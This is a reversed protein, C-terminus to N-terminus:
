AIRERIVDLAADFRRFSPCLNKISDLESQSEVALDFATKEDLWRRTTHELLYPLVVENKPHVYDEPAKKLPPLPHGFVRKWADSCAILWAELMQVAVAVLVPRSLNQPTITQLLQFCTPDNENDVIVLGSAVNRWQFSRVYGEFRKPQNVYQRRGRIRAQVFQPDVPVGLLHETLVPLAGTDAGGDVLFGLRLSETRPM